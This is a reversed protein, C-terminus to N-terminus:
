LFVERELVSAITGLTAKPMTTEIIQRHLATANLFALFESGKPEDKEPPLIPGAETPYEVFVEDGPQTFLIYPLENSRGPVNEIDFSFHKLLKAWRTLKRREDQVRDLWTLWLHLPQRGVVALCEQENSHYKSEAPTFKVFVDSIIKQNGDDGQTQVFRATALICTQKYRFHETGDRDVELGEEPHSLCDFPSSERYLRSRIEKVVRM